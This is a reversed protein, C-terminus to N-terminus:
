GSSERLLDILKEEESTECAAVSVAVEFVEGQPLWRVSSNEMCRELRWHRSTCPELVVVHHGLFGGYSAFIWCSPFPERPFSLGFALNKDPYIMGCYGDQLDVAYGFVIANSQPSQVHSLDVAAGDTKIAHPWQFRKTPATFWTSFETDPEFRCPPLIIRSHENVNLAPHLKFLFPVADRPNTIRYRIDIKSDESALTIWKEFSAGTTPGVSSLHLTVSQAQEIIEHKWEISWMEGHDPFQKNNQVSPADTPFLEEWGGQWVDDYAAGFEVPRPPLKPNHWLFQFDKPRYKLEWIRGGLKPLVVIRWISNQLIVAPEGSCAASTDVHLEKV